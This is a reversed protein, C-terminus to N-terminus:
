VLLIVMIGAETSMRRRHFKLGNVDFPCTTM